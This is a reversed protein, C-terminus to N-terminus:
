GPVQLWIHKRWWDENLHLPYMSFIGNRNVFDGGQVISGKIVQHFFSGKYDLPKGTNPSTGKEGTCLARFNEATMPAVNSLLKFVMREVPDGDISVDMFVLPKKKKRMKRPSIVKM